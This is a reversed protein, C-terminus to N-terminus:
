SDRWKMKPDNKILRNMIKMEFFRNIKTNWADSDVIPKVLISRIGATNAGKIDTIIQDGVMVLQDKPLEIKRAARKFGTGLPKLANPVFPVNLLHAVKKVRHHYNNSLILVPIGESRMKEIWEVTEATGEPHNWAILTNDLDTLIGKINNERLQDPTIQYISEVMWTPKFSELM